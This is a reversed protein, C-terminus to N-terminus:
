DNTRGEAQIQVIVETRPVPEGNKGLLYVYYGDKKKRMYLDLFNTNGEALNIDITHGSTLDEEKGNYKKVKGTILIEIRSTFSQVPFELVYDETSKFQVNDFSVTSKIGLNNTLTVLIKVKELLRFNIDMNRDFALNLRPHLLIKAISGVIFSESNYIYAMDIYYSERPVYVNFREAYGDKTIVLSLNKDSEGYPITFSSEINHKKGEM